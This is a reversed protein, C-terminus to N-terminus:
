KSAGTCHHDLKTTGCDPCPLCKGCMGLFPGEGPWHRRTLLCRWKWDPWGLIYPRSGTFHIRSICLRCDTPGGSTTGYGAIVGLTYLKGLIRSVRLGRLPHTLWHYRRELANVEKRTYENVCYPCAMGIFDDDDPQYVPWHRPEADCEVLEFGEPAAPPNTTYWDAKRGLYDVYDEEDGQEPVASLGPQPAPKM